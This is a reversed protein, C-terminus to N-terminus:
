HYRKTSSYRILNLDIDGNEIATKMAKGNSLDLGITCNLFNKIQGTQFVVTRGYKTGRLLGEDYLKRVQDIGCHLMVAVDKCTWTQLDAGWVPIHSTVKEPSQNETDTYSKNTETEAM